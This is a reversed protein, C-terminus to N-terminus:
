VKQRFHIGNEDLQEVIFTMEGLESIDSFTLNLYNTVKQCNEWFHDSLKEKNKQM